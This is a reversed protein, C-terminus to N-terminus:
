SSARLQALPTAGKKSRLSTLSGWREQGQVLGALSDGTLCAGQKRKSMSCPLHHHSKM